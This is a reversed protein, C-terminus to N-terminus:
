ALTGDVEDGELVRRIEIEADGGLLSPCRGAWEVAEDITRVQWLWFGSVSLSALADPEEITVRRGESFRVRVANSGPYLRVSALMVGAEVLQANFQGMTAPGVRSGGVISMSEHGAMLIAMARM